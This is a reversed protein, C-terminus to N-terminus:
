RLSRLSDPVFAELKTAIILVLANVKQLSEDMKDVKLKVEGVQQEVLKVKGDAYDKAVVLSDKVEQKDAKIQGLLLFSGGGTLLATALVMVIPSKLINGDGNRRKLTM